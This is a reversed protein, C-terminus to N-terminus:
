TCISNDGLQSILGLKDEINSSKFAAMAQVIPEWMKLRMNVQMIGETNDGHGQRRM